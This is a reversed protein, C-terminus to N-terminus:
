QTSNFTITAVTERWPDELPGPDMIKSLAGAKELSNEHDATSAVVDSNPSSATRGINRRKLGSSGPLTVDRELKRTHERARM